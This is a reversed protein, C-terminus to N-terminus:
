HSSHEGHDMSARWKEMKMIENKQNQATKKAFAKLEDHKLQGSTENAMKIGGEHHKSMMALFAMDFDHGKSKELESMDMKPTEAQVQQASPYWRDRWIKLQETEKTQDKAIKKGMEKVEKSSGKESAMKAMKLGDEHHKAMMDIFRLDPENQNQASQSGTGGQSWAAMPTILVSCVLLLAKM